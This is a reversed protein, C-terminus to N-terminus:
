TRMKIQAASAGTVWQSSPGHQFFSSLSVVINPNSSLSPRQISTFPYTAVLLHIPKYLNLNTHTYRLIM